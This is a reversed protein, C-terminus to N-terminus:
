KLISQNLDGVFLPTGTCNKKCNIFNEYVSFRPRRKSDIQDQFTEGNKNVELQKLEESSIDIKYIKYKGDLSSFDVFCFFHFFPKPSWSTLDPTVSCGKVEIIEKTDKKYCDFKTLSKDNNKLVEIKRYTNDFHKSVVAETLSEPINPNRGSIKKLADKYTVWANLASLLNPIDEDNYKAGLIKFKKTIDIEKKIM